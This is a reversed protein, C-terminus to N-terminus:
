KKPYLKMMAEHDAETMVPLGAAIAAPTERYQPPMFANVRKEDGHSNFTAMMIRASMLLDWRRRAHGM